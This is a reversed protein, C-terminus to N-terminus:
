YKYIKDRLFELIFANFTTDHYYIDIIGVHNLYPLNLSAQCEQPINKYIELNVFIKIVYIILTNNFYKSSGKLDRIITSVEVRFCNITLEFCFCFSQEFRRVANCQIVAPVNVTFHKFWHNKVRHSNCLHFLLLSTARSCDLPVSLFCM